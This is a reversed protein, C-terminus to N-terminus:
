TSRAAAREAPPPSRPDRRAGYRLANDVLNGLAQRSRLPDVAARLDPPADVTIERGQERARDAFRQQTRELLDRVEVDETRVPLQGDASRAILLLDEALQALHDTEELAAVLSERM